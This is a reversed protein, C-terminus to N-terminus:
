RRRQMLLLTWDPRVLSAHSILLGSGGLQSGAAGARISRFHRALEGGISDITTLRFREKWRSPDAAYRTDVVVKGDARVLLGRASAGAGRALELVLRQITELSLEVGVVGVVDRGRAQVRIPASCTILLGTGAADVHPDIWRPGSAALAGRFWPRTTPDYEPKDRYRGSGPFSILAGSRTGIVSWTFERRARHAHAVQPSLRSLRRVDALARRRAAGGASAWPALKVTSETMSVPFAYGEHRRVDLPSTKAAYYDEDLYYGDRGSRSRPRFPLHREPLAMLREAEARHQDVTREIEQLYRRLLAARGTV